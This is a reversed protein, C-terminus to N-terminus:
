EHRSRHVATSRRRFRQRDDGSHPHHPLRATAPHGPHGGTRRDPHGTCDTSGGLCTAPHSRFRGAPVGIPLSELSIFKSLPWRDVARVPSGLLKRGMANSKAIHGDRDLTFYAIPALDYLDTLQDLNRSIEAQAGLLTQNQMELEVQHIQLEHVLKMLDGDAGPQHKVAPGAELQQEAQQRLEDPSRPLPQIM